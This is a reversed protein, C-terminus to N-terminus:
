ANAGGWLRARLWTLAFRVPWRLISAGALLVLAAPLWGNQVHVLALIPLGTAILACAAPWHSRKSPFMGIVNATLAWLCALLLSTM